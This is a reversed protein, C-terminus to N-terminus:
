HNNSRFLNSWLGKKPAELAQQREELLQQLERELRQVNRQDESRALRERELEEGLRQRERHNHARGERELELEEKLRQIERELELHPHERMLQKIREQAELRERRERELEELLVSREERLLELREHQDRLLEFRGEGLEEARRVGRLAGIAAALNAVGLAGLVLFPLIGSLNDM